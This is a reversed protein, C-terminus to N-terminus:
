AEDGDTLNAFGREAAMVEPWKRLFCIDDVYEKSLDTEYLEQPFFTLPGQNALRAFGGPYASYQCEFGQGNRSGGFMSGRSSQTNCGDATNYVFDSSRRVVRSRGASLLSPM